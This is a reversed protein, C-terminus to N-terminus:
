IHFLGDPTRRGPMGTRIRVPSFVIKKGQQVWLTQHSQDVCAVKRTLQPCRPAAKTAAATAPAAVTFLLSCAALFTAVRRGRAARRRVPASLPPGPTTVMHSQHVVRPRM